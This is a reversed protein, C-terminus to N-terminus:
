DVESEESSDADKVSMSTTTEILSYESDDVVQELDGKRDSITTDRIRYSVDQDEMGEPYNPLQQDSNKLSQEDNTLQRDSTDKDNNQLQEGKLNNPTSLTSQNSQQDYNDRQQQRSNSSNNSYLQYFDGQPQIGKVENPFQRELGKVVLQAGTGDNPLQRNAGMVDSDLGISWKEEGKERVVELKKADNTVLYPISTPIPPSVQFIQVFSRWFSKDTRGKRFIYPNRVDKCNTVFVHGSSIIEKMPKRISHVPGKFQLSLVKDLNEMKVEFKFRKAEEENALIWVWEWMGQMTSVCM